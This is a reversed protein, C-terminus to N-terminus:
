SNEFAAADRGAFGFYLILALGTLGSFVFKSWSPISSPSIFGEIAGAVILMPITGAFLRLAKGAAVRIADARRLNGPAIIACGIM